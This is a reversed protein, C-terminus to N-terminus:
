PVFTARKVYDLKPFRPTLYENAEVEIRGSDPGKGEPGLEGDGSYFKDPADMAEVIKAFPV